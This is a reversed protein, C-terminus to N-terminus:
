TSAEAEARVEARIELGNATWLSLDKLQAQVFALHRAAEADSV